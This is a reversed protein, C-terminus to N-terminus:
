WYDMQSENDANTILIKPVRYCWWGLEEASPTCHQKDTEKTAHRFRDDWTRLISNLKLGYHRPLVIILEQLIQRGDLDNQYEYITSSYGQVVANVVRFWDELLREVDGIAWDRVRALSVLAANINRLEDASLQTDRSM